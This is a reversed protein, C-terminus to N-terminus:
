VQSGYQEAYKKAHSLLIQELDDLLGLEGEILAAGHANNARTFNRLYQARDQKEQAVLETLAARFETRTM